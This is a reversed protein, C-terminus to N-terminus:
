APPARAPLSARYPPDHNKPAPAPRFTETVQLQTSHQRAPLVILMRAAPNGDGALWDIWYADRDHEQAEWAPDDIDDHHWHLHTEGHDHDPDEAHFHGLPAQGFSILLCLTVALHLCKGV